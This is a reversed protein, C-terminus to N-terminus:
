KELLKALATRDVKGNANLPLEALLHVMRPVMYGPLRAKAASLVADINAESTELFAIIGEAGNATVPWGLAVARDVGAADRLIAEIEGLEVRLGRIKIQHDIRGLYVLPCTGEPRRVLDGTRYFIENRGPPRVFAQATKVPDRWYGLAVQPGSMLLEGTQGPGVEELADDVVIATMGPFPVGIPVVGNECQPQSAQGQWRYVTCALTVETPGYLNELLAHPAAAQWAYAVDATLAEGCFLSLRLHPFAGPALFGLQKMLVAVSPVSFWVTIESELLYSAPLLVQQRSPVCVCAGVKWAMFLDFVSLDFVMDFMQSLRDRENLTYRDQMVQLFRTVNRHSIMVGKPMGTSGSTFLLYAIADEPPVTPEFPEEIPHDGVALVIHQPFRAALETVDRREPFLLLLQEDIGQLVEDLQAEATADVIVARCGAQTLMTRTRAPPFHPNLPVYGHGHFLAALVGSFAPISRYAFVAILPPENVPISNRLATALSAAHQYLARYTIAQGNIALAPRDPFRQLSTMFGCGLWHNNHM